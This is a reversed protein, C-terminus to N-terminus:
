KPHSDLTVNFASISMRPAQLKQSQSDSQENIMSLPDLSVRISAFASEWQEDNLDIQRGAETSNRPSPAKEDQLDSEAKV